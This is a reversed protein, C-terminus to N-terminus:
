RRPSHAHYFVSYCTLNLSEGGLRLELKNEHVIFM